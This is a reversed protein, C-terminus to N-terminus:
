ARIKGGADAEAALKPEIFQTFTAVATRIVEQM